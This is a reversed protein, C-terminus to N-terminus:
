VYSWCLSSDYNGYWMRKTDVIEAATTIDFLRRLDLQKRNTYSGMMVLECTMVTWCVVHTYATLVDHLNVVALQCTLLHTYRFFVRFQRRHFGIYIYVTSLVSWSRGCFFLFRTPRLKNPITWEPSIM